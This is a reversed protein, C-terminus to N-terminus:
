ELFSPDIISDLDKESYYRGRNGYFDYIMKGTVFLCPIGRPDLADHKRKMILRNQALDPQIVGKLGSDMEEPSMGEAKAMIAIAEARNNQIFDRAKFLARIIARADDPRKETIRASFSLGDTIIGPIDGAKAIIKYGKKLAESKAPEWTHGAAIRGEDLAKPVQLASVIEFRLEEEKLGAKTLVSLVFLHSFTNIGEIGVPKEKLDLLSNIKPGAVIVDGSDSYDAVCVFKTPVGESNHFIADTFVEFVGDVQGNRYLDLADGYEKKFVLEVEVGNQKFFGKEQAIFPHAYGPWTSLAIKVPKKPAEYVKSCGAITAAALLLAIIVRFLRM